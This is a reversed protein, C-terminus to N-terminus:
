FVPESLAKDVPPVKVALDAPSVKLKAWVGMTTSGDHAIMKRSVFEFEPFVDRLRPIVERAKPHQLVRVTKGKQDRVFEMAKKWSRMGPAERTKPRGKVLKPIDEVVPEALPRRREILQKPLVPM